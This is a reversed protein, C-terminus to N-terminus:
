SDSKRDVTVTWRGSPLDLVPPISFSIVNGLQQFTPDNADLKSDGFPVGETGSNSQLLWKDRLLRYDNRDSNPVLVARHDLDIILVHYGLVAHPNELRLVLGKSRHNWFKGPEAFCRVGPLRHDSVEVTVPIQKRLARAQGLLLKAYIPDTLFWVVISATLVCVAAVTMKSRRKM